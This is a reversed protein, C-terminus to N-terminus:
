DARELLRSPPRESRRLFEEVSMLRTRQSEKLSKWRADLESREVREEAKISDYFATRRDNFDKVYRRREPGHENEAFFKRRAAKEQADWERRRLRRGAEGERRKRSQDLRLRDLEQDLLDTFERRIKRIEKRAIKEATAEPSPRVSVQATPDSREARAPLSSLAFVSVILFFSAARSM